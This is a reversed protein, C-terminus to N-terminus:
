AFRHLCVAAVMVCRTQLARITSSGIVFASEEVAAAAAAAAADAAADSATWCRSIATTMVKEEVSTYM